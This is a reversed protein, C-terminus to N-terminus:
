QLRVHGHGFRWAGQKGLYVYPDTQGHLDIDVTPLICKTYRAVYMTSYMHEEWMVTHQICKNYRADYM